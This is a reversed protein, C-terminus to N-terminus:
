RPPRAPSRKRTAGRPVIVLLVPISLGLALLAYRSDDTVAGVTFAALAVLLMMAFTM